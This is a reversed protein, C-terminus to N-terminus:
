SSAMLSRNMVHWYILGAVSILGIIARPEPTFLCAPPRRVGGVVDLAAVMARDYLSLASLEDCGRRPVSARCDPAGEFDTDRLPRLARKGILLAQRPRRHLRGRRVGHRGRTGRQLLGRGRLGAHWLGNSQDLGATVFDPDNSTGGTYWLDRNGPPQAACKYSPASAKRLGDGRAGPRHTECLRM